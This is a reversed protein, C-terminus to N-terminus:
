IPVTQPQSNAALEDLLSRDPLLKMESLANAVPIGSTILVSAIPSQKVKTKGKLIDTVFHPLKASLLAAPDPNDWHMRPKGKLSVRDDIVSDSIADKKTKVLLEHRLVSLSEAVEYALLYNDDKGHNVRIAMASWPFAYPVIENQRVPKQRKVLEAVHRPSILSAGWDERQFSNLSPLCNTPIVLNEPVFSYICYYPVLKQQRAFKVLLKRQVGNRYNLCHCRKTHPDIVKAQVLLSIWAGPAGICWVWDAGSVNGENKKTFQIQHIYKSHRKKIELLCLNTLTEELVGLRSIMGDYLTTNIWHARENLSSKLDLFHTISTM